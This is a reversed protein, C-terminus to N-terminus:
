QGYWLIFISTAATGQKQQEQKEDREKLAKEILQNKYPFLNPM